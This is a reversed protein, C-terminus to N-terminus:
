EQKTNSDNSYLDILSLGFMTYETSTRIEVKTNSTRETRFLDSGCQILVLSTQITCMLCNLEVISFLWDLVIFINFTNKRNLLWITYDTLKTCWFIVQFNEILIKWKFFVNLINSITCNFELDYVFLVFKHISSVFM